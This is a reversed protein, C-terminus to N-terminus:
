KEKNSAVASLLFKNYLILADNASSLGEKYKSQNAYLRGMNTKIDAIEMEYNLKIALALATKFINMATDSNFYVLQVALENLTNVRSTDQKETVLIKKLSDIRVSDGQTYGNFSFLAFATLLITQCFRKKM